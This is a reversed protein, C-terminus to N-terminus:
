VIMVQCVKPCGGKREGKEVGGRGMNMETETVRERKRGKEKQGGKKKTM